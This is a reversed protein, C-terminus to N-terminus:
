DLKVDLHVVFFRPEHKWHNYDVIKTIRSDTLVVNGHRDTVVALHDQVKVASRISTPLIGRDLELLSIAPNTQVQKLEELYILCAVTSTTTVVTDGFKTRGVTKLQGFQTLYKETRILPNFKPVTM